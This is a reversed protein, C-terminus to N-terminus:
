DVCCDVRLYNLSRDSQRNLVQLQGFIDTHLNGTDNVPVVDNKEASAREAPQLCRAKRLVRRLHCTYGVEWRPTCTPHLPRWLFADIVVESLRQCVMKVQGKCVDSTSFRASLM